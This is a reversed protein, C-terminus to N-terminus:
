NIPPLKSLIAAKIKDNISYHIDIILLNQVTKASDPLNVADKRTTILYRCGTNKAQHILANLDAVSYKHHDPFSKTVPTSQTLHEVTNFFQDPNGLGCFATARENKLETTPIEVDTSLLCIRGISMPLADLFLNSNIKKFYDASLTSVLDTRSVLLLDARQLGKMSERLRGVPLIFSTKPDHDADWIVIDINRGLRRHQFADDAIVIDCAYTKVTTKAAMIRDTDAVVITQRTNSAIIFPEDGAQDPTSLISNRDRVIQQGKGRRRYGRTVIGPSYGIESLWNALAIVFPTKGTGGVTINGVSIVPINVSHTKLLGRDYLWNRMGTILRFIGAFPLMFIQSIIKLLIM